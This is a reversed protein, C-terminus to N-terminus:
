GLDVGGEDFGGEVGVRVEGSFEDELAGGGDGVSEGVGAAEKEREGVGVGEHEVSEDSAVGLGVVGM